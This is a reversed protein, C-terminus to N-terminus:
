RSGVVERGDGEERIPYHVEFEWHHRPTYVGQVPVRNRVSFKYKQHHYDYASGDERHAAVDLYYSGETLGLREITVRYRGNRPGHTVLEGPLPVSLQEIASNTGWVALGDFRLIGVGFVLDGVQENVTYNVEIILGCDETFLLREKGTHDLLRIGHIEVARDGWRRGEEADGNSSESKQAENQFLKLQLEAEEHVAGLYEDIVIRPEGQERIRGQDLWVAEDCWKEVSGLDHTVLILTKGSAQFESITEQCRHIFAADGVSLIEDVLLIDPDTHVALSFGLRMYMGSSYTRVPDDIFDELGAYRVITDFRERIERRTLGYMVGGLLINERGTFDPHFGAGLEILASVRGNVAIQGSDPQYIGTLLKLLTSKGSGNRGIIGISRGPPITLSVDDLATIFNEKPFRRQFARNLFSSKVTSYNKRVTHKRFRKSVHEVVVSGHSKETTVAMSKSKITM